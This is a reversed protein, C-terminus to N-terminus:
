KAADSRGWYALAADLRAWYDLEALVRRDISWRQWFPVGYMADGIATNLRAFEPTEEFVGAAAEALDLATFERRVREYAAPDCTLWPILCAFVFWVWLGIGAVGIMIDGTLGWPM